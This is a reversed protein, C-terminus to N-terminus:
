VSAGGYQFWFGCLSCVEVCEGVRTFFLNVNWNAFVRTDNAFEVKHTLQPPWEQYPFPQLSTKTFRIPFTLLRKENPGQEMEGGVSHNRFWFVCKTRERSDENKLWLGKIGGVALCSDQSGNDDKLKCEVDLWDHLRNFRSLVIVEWFFFFFSYFLCVRTEMICACLVCECVCVCM